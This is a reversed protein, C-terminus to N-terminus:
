ASAYDLKTPRVTDVGQHVGLRVEPPYSFLPIFLRVETPSPKSFIVGSLSTGSNCSEVSPISDSTHSHSAHRPVILCPVVGSHVHFLPLAKGMTGIM